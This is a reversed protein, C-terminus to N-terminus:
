ASICSSASTMSFRNDQLVRFIVVPSHSFERDHTICLPKRSQAFRVDHTRYDPFVHRYQPAKHTAGGMLRSEGRPKDGQVM